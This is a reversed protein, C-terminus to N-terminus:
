IGDTGGEPATPTTSDRRPRKPRRTTTRAPKPLLTRQDKSAPAHLVQEVVKSIVAKLATEDSFLHPHDQVIRVTGDASTVDEAELVGFYDLDRLFDAKCVTIPLHVSGYHLYDLMHGFHVGNRDIFIATDQNEGSDNPNDEGHKGENWRESVLAAMRGPATSNSVEREFISYTRTRSLTRKHLKKDARRDM